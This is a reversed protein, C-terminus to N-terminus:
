ERVQHRPQTVIGLLKGDDSPSPRRLDTLARVAAGRGAFRPTRAAPSLLRHDAREESRQVLDVQQAQDEIFLTRNGAGGRRRQRAMAIAGIRARTVTYMASPVLPLACLLRHNRTIRTSTDAERPCGAGLSGALAAREDFTLGVPSFETRDTMLGLPEDSGSHLQVPTRTHCQTSTQVPYCCTLPPLNDIM